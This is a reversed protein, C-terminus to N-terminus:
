AYRAREGGILKPRSYVFDVRANGITLATRVPVAVQDIHMGIMTVGIDIGAQARVNEVLVPEKMLEFAAAAASGGAKPYPIACVRTLKMERAVEWELALARNLHECCQVALHANARATMEMVASVIARGAEPASSSGIAAGMVESTSLGLVILDGKEVRIKEAFDALVERTMRALDMM